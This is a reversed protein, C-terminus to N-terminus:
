QAGILGGLARAAEQELKKQLLAGPSEGPAPAPVGIKDSLAKKAQTELKRREEQLDAGGIKGSAQDLLPIVAPGRWPGTIRVPVKLAGARAAGTAPDLRTATLVMDLSQGALDITGKGAVDVLPGLLRFDDTSAVGRRIAFDATVRDFITKNEQGRYNPDLRLIMGLLDFGVLEGKGIALKASGRLSRLIAPVSRGAGLVDIEGSLPGELRDFGVSAMLLPRLAVNSIRAKLATSLGKRGNLVWRGSVGGGYIGARALDVVLRGRDLAAALDVNAATAAGHTLTGVTLKVDADMLHLPAPDLAAANGGGAASGTSGKGGGIRTFPALDLREAALRAVLKPRAGALSLDADGTLVQRGLGIRGKRLSFRTGQWAMEGGLSVRLLPPPLDASAGALSLLAPLNPARIEGTGSIAVAGMDLRGSLTGDLYAGDLGLSFGARGSSLLAAVPELRLAVKQVRGEIRGELTADLTGALAPLTAEIGLGTIEFRRGLPRDDWLLRSRTLSIRDIGEIPAGGGAADAGPGQEAEAGAADSGGAAALSFWDIKGDGDRTVRVDAEEISIRRIKVVGSLLQLPDLGIGMKGAKLLTRGDRSVVLGKATVGLPLLSPKVGGEFRVDAGLAQSLGQAVIRGIRDAPLLFLAGLALAALVVVLVVLRVLWRM